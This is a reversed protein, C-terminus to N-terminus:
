QMFLDGVQEDVFQVIEESVDEFDLAEVDEYGMLLRGGTKPKTTTGSSSGSEKMAEEMLKGFDMAAAMGGMMGSVMGSMLDDMSSIDATIETAMNMMKTNFKSQAGSKEFANQNVALNAAEKIDALQAKTQTDLEKQATKNAKKMDKEGEKYAKLMAEAADFSAKAIGEATVTIDYAAAAADMAM